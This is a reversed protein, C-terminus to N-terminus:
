IQGTTLHSEVFSQHFHLTLPKVGADLGARPGVWVGIWHTDTAREKPATSAHLQGSVEM